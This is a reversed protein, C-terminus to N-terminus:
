IHEPLWDEERGEGRWTVESLYGVPNGKQILQFEQKFDNIPTVM